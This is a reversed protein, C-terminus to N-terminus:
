IQYSNIIDVKGGSLNYDFINGDGIVSYVPVYFSNFLGGVNRFGIFHIYKATDIAKEEWQGFPTNSRVKGTPSYHKNKLWKLGKNFQDNSVVIEESLEYNLGVNEGKNKRNKLLNMEAESITGSKYIEKIIDETKAKKGM